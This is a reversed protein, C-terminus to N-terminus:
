FCCRGFHHNLPQSRTPRPDTFLQLTSNITTMIDNMTVVGQKILNSIFIYGIGAVALLAIVIASLTIILSRNKKM